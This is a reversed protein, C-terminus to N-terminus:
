RAVQRSRYTLFRALTTDANSALRVRDGSWWVEVGVLVVRVGLSTFTAAVEEVVEQCRQEATHVEGWRRALRRDVVLVLPLYLPSTDTHERYWGPGVVQVGQEKPWEGGGRGLGCAGEERGEEERGVASGVLLWAVLGAKM